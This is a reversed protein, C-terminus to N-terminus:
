FSAQMEMSSTGRFVELPVARVAGTAAVAAQLDALSSLPHGDYDYLIDGVILGARQAVSGAKVDAVLIGRRQPQEATAAVAIGTIGLDRQTSAAPASTSSAPSEPSPSLLPAQANRTQAVTDVRSLLGAIEATSLVGSYAPGPQTHLTFHWLTPTAGATAALQELAAGGIAFSLRDTYTCVGTACFEMSRQVVTVPVNHPGDPMTFSATAYARPGGEYIVVVVVRYSRQGSHNDIMAQLFEDNWVMRLPGKREVYGSETTVTTTATAPDTTVGATDRFHEMSLKLVAPERALASGVVLTLLLAGTLATARRWAHMPRMPSALAIGRSPPISTPYRM